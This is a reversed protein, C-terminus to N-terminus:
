YNFYRSVVFVFFIVFKLFAFLEIQNKEIKRRKCVGFTLYQVPCIINKEECISFISWTNCKSSSFREENGGECVFVCLFHFANETKLWILWCFGNNEIIIRWFKREMCLVCSQLLLKYLHFPNRKAFCVDYKIDFLRHVSLFFTKKHSVKKDVHLTILFYCKSTFLM